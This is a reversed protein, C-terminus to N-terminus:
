IIAEINFSNALSLFKCSVKIWINQKSVNIERLM